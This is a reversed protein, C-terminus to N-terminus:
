PLVPYSKNGEGQTIETVIGERVSLIQGDNSFLVSQGDPSYSPQQANKNPLNTLRTLANTDMVLEWVDGKDIFVVKTADPSLVPPYNWEVSSVQKISKSDIDVIAITQNGPLGSTDSNLFVIKSADQSWRPWALIKGEGQVLLNTGDNPKRIYLDAGDTASDTLAYVISGDSAIDAGIVGAPLGSNVYSGNLGLYYVKRENGTIDSALYLLVKKSDPSWATFSGPQAPTLINGSIDTIYTEVESGDGIQITVALYQRDPSLFVKQNTVVVSESLIETNQFVGFDSKAVIRAENGPTKQAYLITADEQGFLNFSRTEAYIEQVYLLSVFVAAGVLFIALPKAPLKSILKGEHLSIVKPTNSLIKWFSKMVEIIQQNNYNTLRIEYSRASFSESTTLRKLSLDEGWLRGGSM